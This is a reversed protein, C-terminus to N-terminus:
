YRYIPQLSLSNTSYTKKLRQPPALTPSMVPSMTTPSNTQSDYNYQRTPTKNFSLYQPAQFNRQQQQQQQQQQNYPQPQPQLQQSQKQFLQQSNEGTNNHVPTLNM